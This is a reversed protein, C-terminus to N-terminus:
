PEAAHAEHTTKGGHRFDWPAQPQPQSWLGRRAARAAEEQPVFDQSYKRYAWALGAEVLAANLSLERTDPGAREEVFVEGVWRGYKDYDKVAVRVTKGFVQESTFTKAKAGFAQRKEPADVGHLRIRVEKGNRLVAITDGDMVGVVQGSFVECVEPPELVSPDASPALAKFWPSLLLAGLALLFALAQLAKKMPNRAAM